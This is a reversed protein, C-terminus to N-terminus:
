KINDIADIILLFHLFTFVQDLFMNQKGVEVGNMVQLQLAVQIKRRM